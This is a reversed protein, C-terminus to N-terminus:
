GPVILCILAKKYFVYSPVHNLKLEKNQFKNQGRQLVYLEEATEEYCISM